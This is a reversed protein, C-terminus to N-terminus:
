QSSSSSNNEKPRLTKMNYQFIVQQLDRTLECASMPDRTEIERAMMAIM